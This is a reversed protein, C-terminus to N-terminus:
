LLAAISKGLSELDSKLQDPKPQAVGPVRLSATISVVSHGRIFRLEVADPVLFASDGVGTITQAGPAAKKAGAFSAATGDDSRNVTVTGGPGVNSSKLTFVCQPNGIGTAM